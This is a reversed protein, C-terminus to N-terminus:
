KLFVMKRAMSYDGFTLKYFYIGSSVEKGSEDKGDWFVLHFGSVMRQNQVLTRIKQGLINYIDLNVLGAKSSIEFEINTQPNFPNPYNQHLAIKQPLNLDDKDEAVDTFNGATDIQRFYIDRGRLSDLDLDVTGVFVYGSDEVLVSSIINQCGRNIVRTWLTDGDDNIKILYGARDMGKPLFSETIGGIIFGDNTKKVSSAWDREPGGYTNEWIVNGLTDTRIVYVDKSYAGLGSVGGILYGDEALCLSYGIDETERNYTQSWLSDGNDNIRLLCIDREFAEIWVAGAVAFGGDDLPQISYACGKYFNRMWIRSWIVDCSDGMDVIRVLSFGRPEDPSSGVVVCQSDKCALDFFPLEPFIRKWLVNGDFDIKWLFGHNGHDVFIGCIIYGDDVKQIGGVKVWSSFGSPRHTKTWLTDGERDTRIVYIDQTDAIMPNRIEGIVIYGDSLKIAARGQDDPRMDYFKEFGQSPIFSVLILAAVSLVVGLLRKLTLM